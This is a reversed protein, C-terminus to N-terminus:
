SFLLLLLVDGVKMVLDASVLAFEDNLRKNEATAHKCQEDLTEVASELETKREQLEAIVEAKQKCDTTTEDLSTKTTTLAQTLEAQERELQQHIMWKM